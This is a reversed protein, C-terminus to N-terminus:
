NWEAQLHKYTIRKLITREEVTEAASNGESLQQKLTRTLYFKRQETAAQVDKDM